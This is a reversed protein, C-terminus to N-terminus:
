VEEGYVEFLHFVLEGQGVKMQVTGVYKKYAIDFSHGTGFWRFKREETPLSTDILAWIKPEGYQTQVALIEAGEPMALTIFDDIEIDFKGVMKM